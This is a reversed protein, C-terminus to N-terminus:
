EDKKIPKNNIEFNLVNDNTIMQYINAAKLEYEAIKSNINTFKTIIPLTTEKKIKNIYKQGNNSIGLLRIYENNNINNRDEKTLGILIHILMRMIRNYTYRKTKVSNVLEDISNVNNIVKKLRNEIGEDVTLYKSLDNDSIIKYKILNFLLDNNITNINGEPIYKDISEKNNLKERINSASIISDNSNTDHYNNTRKISIPEINYKNKLIAKIYSIGLIDNPSSINSNTVKNIATPYNIGQDLLSKLEENYNNNLQKKAIDTLLTIDNSESGFILKNIKLDNLIELSASSFTDASNTGFIFPLECVIDCGYKLALRTKEEKSEISVLGRELFYGNLILIITSDPYLKKIENLQYLHGNHFPSYEAILGIIEM